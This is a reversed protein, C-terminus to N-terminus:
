VAETRGAVENWKKIRECIESIEEEMHLGVILNEKTLEAAIISAYGPKNNAYKDGAGKRSRGASTSLAGRAREACWDKSVFITVQERRM